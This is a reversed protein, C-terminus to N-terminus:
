CLSTITYCVQRGGITTTIEDECMAGLLAQGLPSQPTVVTIQRADFRVTQGGAAPGILVIRQNETEDVLAVLSGMAVEDHQGLGNALNRFGELAMGLQVVRESQGHALYAAELGLTDYKNEAVNEKSTATARAEDAAALAMHVASELDAIVTRVLASKDLTKVNFDTM